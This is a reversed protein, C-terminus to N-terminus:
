SALSYGSDEKLTIHERLDDSILITGDNKVAIVSFESRNLNDAVVQSGLM